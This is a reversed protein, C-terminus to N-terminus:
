NMVKGRVSDMKGRWEESRQKVGEERRPVMKQNVVDPKYGGSTRCHNKRVRLGGGTGGGKKKQRGRGAQAREGM